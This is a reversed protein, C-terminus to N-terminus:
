NKPGKIKEIGEQILYNGLLEDMKRFTRILQESADRESIGQVHSLQRVANLIAKFPVSSSLESLELSFNRKETKKTSLIAANFVRTLHDKTSPQPVSVSKVNTRAPQVAFSRQQM